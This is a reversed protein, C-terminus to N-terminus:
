LTLLSHSINLTVCLLCLKGRECWVCCLIRWVFLNLSPNSMRVAPCIKLSLFGTLSINLVSYMHCCNLIYLVCPFLVNIDCPSIANSIQILSFNIESQYHIIASTKPLACTNQQFWQNLCCSLLLKKWCKLCIIFM